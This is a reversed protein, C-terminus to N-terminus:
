KEVKLKSSSIQKRESGEFDLVGPGLLRWFEGGFGALVSLILEWIANRRVISSIKLFHLGGM